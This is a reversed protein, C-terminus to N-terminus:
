NFYRDNEHAKMINKRNKENSRLSYRVKLWTYLSDENRGNVDRKRLLEMEPEFGHGPRVYKLGNYIEEANNGPEQHAFQNCPVALIKLGCRDSNYKVQLSNLGYYQWTYQCFTAVNVILIISDGYNKFNVRGGKLDEDNFQHISGEGPLCVEFDKERAYVLKALVISLFLVLTQVRRHM